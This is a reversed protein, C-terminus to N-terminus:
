KSISPETLSVDNYRARGVSSGRPSLSHIKKPANGRVVELVAVSLSGGCHGCRHADAPSEGACKPCLMSSLHHSIASGGTLGSDPPPARSSPGGLARLRGAATAGRT